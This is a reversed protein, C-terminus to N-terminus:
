CVRRVDLQRLIELPQLRRPDFKMSSNRSSILLLAASAAVRLSCTLLYSLDLYTHRHCGVANDCM